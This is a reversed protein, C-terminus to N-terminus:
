LTQNNYKGKIDNLISTIMILLSFTMLVLVVVPVGFASLISSILSVCFYAIGWGMKKSKCAFVCLILNAAFLVMVGIILVVLFEVANEFNEFAGMSGIMALQGASVVVVFIFYALMFGLYAMHMGGMVWKLVNLVTMGTSPKPPIVENKVVGTPNGCGVCFRATDSILKGCKGCYM